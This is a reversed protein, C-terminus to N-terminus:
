SWVCSMWKRSIYKISVDGTLNKKLESVIASVTVGDFAM